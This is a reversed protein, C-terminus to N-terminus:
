ITDWCSFQMWFNLSSTDREMEPTNNEPTSNEPTNNEPTNNSEGNFFYGLYQMVLIGM